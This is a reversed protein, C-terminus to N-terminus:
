QTYVYLITTFMLETQRERLLLHLLKALELDRGMFLLKAKDQASRACM